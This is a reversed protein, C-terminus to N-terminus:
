DSYGIYSHKTRGAVIHASVTTATQGRGFAYVCGDYANVGVLIGDAIAGVVIQGSINWLEAGTNADYCLLEHGRYLPQQEYSKLTTAYVKNDAIAITSSLPYYPQPMELGGTITPSDWLQVGTSINIAHMYGDYGANYLTGNAVVGYGMSEFVFDNNFPTSTLLLAGTTESIAFLSELMKDQLIIVGQNLLATHTSSGTSSDYPPVTYNEIWAFTAPTTYQVTGGIDVTYTSTLPQNATNIAEM